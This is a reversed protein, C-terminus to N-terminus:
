FLYLLELVARTNRQELGGDSNPFFPQTSYDARVAARLAIRPLHFTTHEINSFVGGQASSYFWMPGVTISRLVGGGTPVDPTPSVVGKTDDLHDYRASLGLSNSLRLFATMTGGVWRNSGGAGDREGGLNLEAGVILPGRQLTLDAAMLSRQFGATSDRQPGYVGTVGLTLGETAIWEARLFGTKGKNVSSEVDWGDAVAAVFQLSSVPTFRVLGGTLASPRALDFNFSHTAILNLPEDDHEFGLPGMLRGFEFSWQPATHPAWVVFLHDIDTSVSGADLATTLQAFFYADGAPKFFSVAVKDATLDNSHAIRDWSAHAVGYGGVTVPQPEEFTVPEGQAAAEVAVGCLLVCWLANRM